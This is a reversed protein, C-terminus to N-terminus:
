VLRDLQAEKSLYLRIELLAMCMMQSTFSTEQINCISAYFYYLRQLLFNMLPEYKCNYIRILYLAVVYPAKKFVSEMLFVVPDHLGHHFGLQNLPYSLEHAFDTVYLIKRDKKVPNLPAYILHIFDELDVVMPDLITIEEHKELQLKSQRQMNGTEHSSGIENIQL